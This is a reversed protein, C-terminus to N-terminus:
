VTCLLRRRCILKSQQPQQPIGCTTQMCCPPRQMSVLESIRLMPGVARRPLVVCRPGDWKERQADKELVYVSLDYGRSKTPNKESFRVCSRRAARVSPTCWARGSVPAGRTWYPVLFGFRTPVQLQPLDILCRLRSSVRGYLIDAFRRSRRLHQVTASIRRM